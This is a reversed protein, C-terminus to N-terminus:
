YWVDSGRTRSCGCRRSRATPGRPAARTTLGKAYLAIVMDDFETFRRTGKPVTVPAFTGARDRPVAIQAPGAATHVTKATSGNRSNGSGRGEAAYREYGLHATGPEPEPHEGPQTVAAHAVHQDHATVPEAPEGLHDMEGQLAAEVAQKIM